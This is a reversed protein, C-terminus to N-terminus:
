RINHAKELLESIDQEIHRLHVANFDDNPGDYWGGMFLAGSLYNQGNPLLGLGAARGPRLATLGVLTPQQILAMDLVELAFHDCANVRERGAFWQDFGSKLASHDLKRPPGEQIAREFVVSIDGNPGSLLYRWLFSAGGSRLEWAILHTIAEIDAEACRSLRLFDHPRLSVDPGNGTRQHWVRRLGAVFSILYRSIGKESKQLLDPQYGLDFHNQNPYYYSAHPELLPDLGVTVDSLVAFRVLMRGLPSHDLIKLLNRIYGAFLMARQEVPAFVLDRDSLSALRFRIRRDGLGELM